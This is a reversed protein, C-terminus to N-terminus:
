LGALVAQRCTAPFFKYDKTAADTGCSWGLIADAATTMPKTRKDDTTPQLIISKGDAGTAVNRILGSTIKGTTSDVTIGGAMYKTQVDKSCGAQEADTPFKANTQIFESVAGKCAGVQLNVETVKARATYDQYAPLAVAALIGIIAVVIMLEILTFGAQIKKSVNM